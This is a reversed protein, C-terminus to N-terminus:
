DRDFIHVICSQGKTLQNMLDQLEKHGTKVYRCEKLLKESTKAYQRLAMRENYNKGTRNIWIEVDDRIGNKNSDFGLEDPVIKLLNPMPPEKEGDYIPNPNSDLSKSIMAFGIIRYYESYKYGLYLIILSAIIIISNRKHNKEM